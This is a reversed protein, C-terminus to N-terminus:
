PLEVLDGLQAEFQPRQPYYGIKKYEVTRRTCILAVVQPQSASELYIETRFHMGFSTEWFPDDNNAYIVPQHVYDNYLRVRSVKFEGPEVKLQPEDVQQYRDMLVSCFVQYKDIQARSVLTQNQIYVSNEDLPLDATINLQINSGVPLAPQNPHQPGKGTCAVLTISFALVFTAKASGPKKTHM